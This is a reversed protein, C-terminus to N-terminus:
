VEIDFFRWKRGTEALEKCWTDINKFVSQTNYIGERMLLHNIYEMTQRREDSNPDDLNWAFKFTEGTQRDTHFILFHDKNLVQIEIRTIYM